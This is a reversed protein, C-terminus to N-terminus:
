RFRSVNTAIRLGVMQREFGSSLSLREFVEALLVARAALEDSDGVIPTHRTSDILHLVEDANREDWTSDASRKQLSQSLMVMLKPHQGASYLAAVEIRELEALAECVVASRGGGRVGGACPSPLRPVSVPEGRSGRLERAFATARRPWIRSSRWRRWEDSEFRPAQLVQGCPLSAVAHFARAPAGACRARGARSVGDRRRQEASYTGAHTLEEMAGLMRIVPFELLATITAVGATARAARCGSNNAARRREAGVAATRRAGRTDTARRRRCGDRALAHRARSSLAANGREIAHVM